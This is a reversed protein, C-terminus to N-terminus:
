AIKRTARDKPVIRIDLTYRSDPDAEQLQAVINLLARRLREWRGRERDQDSVTTAGEEIAIDM